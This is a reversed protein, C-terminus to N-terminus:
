RKYLRQSVTTQFTLSSGPINADQVTFYMTVAPHRNNGFTCHGAGGVGATAVDCVQSFCYGAQIAVTCECFSGNFVGGTPGCDSDWGATWTPADVADPYPNINQTFVFGANTVNVNPFDFLRQCYIDNNGEKYFRYFGPIPGTDDVCLDTGAYNSPLYVYAIVKDNAFTSEDGGNDYLVLEREQQYIDTKYPNGECTTGCTTAGDVADVQYLGRIGTFSNTFNLIGYYAIEYTRVERSIQDLLVAAASTIKQRQGSLRHTRSYTLYLNVVTTVVIIFVGIVVVTEM